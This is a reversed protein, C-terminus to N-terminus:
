AHVSYASCNNSLFNDQGGKKWIEGLAQTNQQYIEIAQEWSSQQKLYWFFFYAFFM